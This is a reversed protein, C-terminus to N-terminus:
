PEGVEDVQGTEWETESALYSAPEGRSVRFYEDALAVALVLGDIAMVTQPIWLPTAVMGDARDDYALSDLTLAFAYWTFYAALLFALFLVDIEDFLLQAQDLAHAQLVVHLGGGALNFAAGSASASDSGTPRRGPDAYPPGRGGDPGDIM